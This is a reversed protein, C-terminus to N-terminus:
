AKAVQAIAEAMIEAAKERLAAMVTGKGEEVAARLEKTLARDVAEAILKDLVTTSTSTRMGSNSGAKSTLQKRGEEIILETLTTPDGVAGGFSNTRQVSTKIAEEVVPELKERILENRVANVRNRFEGYVDRDQTLRDVLKTAARDVILDFLVTGDDAVIQDVDYEVRLPGQPTAMDTM